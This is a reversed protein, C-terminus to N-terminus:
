STEASGVAVADTVCEQVVAANDLAVAEGVAVETSVSVSVAVEDGVGVRDALAVVNGRRTAVAVTEGVAVAERSGVNKQYGEVSVADGDDVMDGAVVAVTDGECVEPKVAVCDDDAVPQCRHEVTCHLATCHLATCHRANWEWLSHCAGHATRTRPDSWSDTRQKGRKLYVTCVVVWHPLCQEADTQLWWEQTNCVDQGGGGGGRCIAWHSPVLLAM